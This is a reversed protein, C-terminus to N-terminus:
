PIRINTRVQAARVLQQLFPVLRKQLILSRKSDIRRQIAHMVDKRSNVSLQALFLQGLLLEPQEFGVFFLVALPSNLLNLSQALPFHSVAGGLRILRLWYRNRLQQDPRPPACVAEYRDRSTRM